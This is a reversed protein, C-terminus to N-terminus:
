IFKTKDIPKWDPCFGYWCCPYHYGWKLYELECKGAKNYKCKDPDHKKMQAKM